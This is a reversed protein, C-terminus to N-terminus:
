CRKPGDSTRRARWLEVTEIVLGVFSGLMLLPFAADSWPESLERPAGLHELWKAYGFSASALLFCPLRVAQALTSSDRKRRIIGGSAQDRRDQDRGHLFALAIWGALLGAAVWPGWPKFGAVAMSGVFAVMTAIGMIM